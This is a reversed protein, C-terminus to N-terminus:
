LIFVSYYIIFISIAIELYVVFDIVGNDKVSVTEKMMAVQRIMIISFYFYVLSSIVAIIKFLISFLEKFNILNFVDIM